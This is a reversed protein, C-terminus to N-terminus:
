SSQSLIKATESTLFARYNLGGLPSKKMIDILVPFESEHVLRAERIEDTDLPSIEGSLYRATFIHSTWDISYNDSKFLVNIRLIYKELEVNVGTEEYAERLAGDRFDEDPNVGGSPARYLGEPYFHKAIFIYKNDKRIYLTIDHSRGNKMSNKVVEIDSLSMSQTFNLQIPKDFLREMNPVQANLYSM